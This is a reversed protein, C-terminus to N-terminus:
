KAMRAGNEQILLGSLGKDFATRRIAKGLAPKGLM